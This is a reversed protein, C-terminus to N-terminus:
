NQREEPIDLDLDGEILALLEASVEEADRGALAALAGAGSSPPAFLGPDVGVLAATLRDAVEEAAERRVREIETGHAAELREREAAIRMAAEGEIAARARRVYESKVGALEQLTRWFALRDRCALALPRSLALRVMRGGGEVAWFFPVAELAAESDLALWEPVPVLGDAAVADPVRRFGGALTESLLAFDAFTFALSLTEPSGGAGEVELAHIPWDEAPEPNGDFSMREAWSLGAEPDYAFLPHARGDVAAGAAVVRDLSSGLGTQRAGDGAVVHLGSRTGAAARALGAALHLPRSLSSQAVFAERLAVGLFAPEFRFGALPEGAAEEGPAPASGPNGAPDIELLVQVPRGSLLLKSLSVMGRGALEGASEVALVPPLLALEERSLAQWDLAALSAEQAEHREGQYSGESELRVRRAARLAEVVAEAERDFLEAASRCPDASELLSWGSGGSIEAEAPLWSVTGDHVLHVAPSPVRAAAQRLTERSAELAARRAPELRESGRREGLVGALAAPDFHRGGAAGMAGAGGPRRSSPDNRRDADLIAEARAALDRAERAFAERAPRQCVLIAHRALVLPVGATAGLLRGGEPIAAALRDLDAALTERDGPALALEAVMAAGAAALLERAGVPAEATGPARGAIEAAHRELRRLNDHLLTGAPRGEGELARELRELLASFALCGSGEGAAELPPLYLPYDSRVRPAGRFSHLLAPLLGEGVRELESDSGAPSPVGLHFRRLAAFGDAGAGSAAARPLRPRPPTERPSKM